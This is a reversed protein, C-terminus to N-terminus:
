QSVAIALAAVPGLAGAEYFNYVAVALTIFTSSGSPPCAARVLPAAPIPQLPTSM